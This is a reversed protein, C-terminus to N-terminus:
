KQYVRIYDVEMRLPLSADDIPGGCNGGLALNVIIYQPHKYPNYAAFPGGKNVTDTLLTENMLRDDLYIRIAERDWDMRWIHFKEKWQPDEAELEALTVHEGHWDPDMPRGSAHAVNALIAPGVGPKPYYEMIDIEGADPWSLGNFETGSGLTWFAPWAGGATPIKARMEFRGYLFERKEATNLRASTYGKESDKCAEIILMGDECWANGEQYFQAENNYAYGHFFGWDQGNVPGDAEFEDSWVLRYGDASAEQRGQMCSVASLAMMLGCLLNIHLNSESM